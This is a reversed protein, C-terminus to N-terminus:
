SLSFIQYFSGPDVLCEQPNLVSTCLWHIIVPIDSNTRELKLLFDGHQVEYKVIDFGNLTLRFMLAHILFRDWFKKLSYKNRKHFM